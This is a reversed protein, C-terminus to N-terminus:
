LAIVVTNKSKEMNGNSLEVELFVIYIGDRLQLQQQNLGDWLITGEAERPENDILTNVLRGRDDFISLTFASVAAGFEYNIQLIDDIGDQNPSFVQPSISVNSSNDEVLETFNSNEYGPTAFNDSFSASTWNDENNTALDFSIREISVGDDEGELRPDHLTEHYDFRDIISKNSDLLLIVESTHDFSPLDAVSFLSPVNANPYELAINDIDESFAAYNEPNLVFFDTAIIEENALLDDEVDLIAISWGNLNIAKSSKNYLELFTKGGQRSNILVENIIIDLSDASEPLYFELSNNIIGNGVCDFVSNATLNYITKTSLTTTIIDISNGSTNTTSVVQIGKNITFNQALLSNEDMVEDFIVQISTDSIAFVNLLSPAELDPSIDIISNVAGPTGGIISNSASWNDGGGSCTNEPNILELTWGGGDKNADNYWSTTYNISDIVEGEDSKLTLIDGSNNLSPLSIGIVAGFANFLATDEEECIIVFSDPLLTYTDITASSSADSLKWNSLDIAKNSANFLEVFEAEPLGFSPIPDPYIENIIIDRYGAKDIFVFNKAETVLENDAKDKINNVTLQYNIGSQFANSFNLRILSSDTTSQIASIPEGIGNDVSYNSKNTASVFEVKESFQVELENGSLTTVSTISPPTIDVVPTSGKKVVFDDFYFKDSRTSTYKCLVGFHSTTTHTDDFVTGQSQYNTGGTNDALLEWNGNNDRTVRINVIVNSVDVLDDTGDIIKANTGANSRYLSIEDTTNGIRVFYGNLSQSLDANDSILYVEAYNQSSPNFDMEITFEWTVDQVITNSTSLYSVATVAPANLHLKQLGDVEFDITNGDWVPNATFDGDNFNDSLQAM